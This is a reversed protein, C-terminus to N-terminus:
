HVGFHRRVFPYIWRRPDFRRDLGSNGDGDSVMGDQKWEDGVAEGVDAGRAGLGPPVKKGRRKHAISRNHRAVRRLLVPAPILSAALIGLTQRATLDVDPDSNGGCTPLPIRFVYVMVLLSLFIFVFMRIFQWYFDVKAFIWSWM